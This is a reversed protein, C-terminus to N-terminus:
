VSLISHFLYFLGTTLFIPSLSKVEFTWDQMSAKDNSCTIFEKYRLKRAQLIFYSLGSLLPLVRLM